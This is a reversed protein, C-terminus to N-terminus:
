WRPLARVELRPPAEGEKITLKPPRLSRDTAVRGAPRGTAMSIPVRTPKVAYVGPPLPAFTFRGDTDTEAARQRDASDIVRDLAEFGARDRARQEIAVFVGAMPKGQVDLLRGTVTVGQKLTITGMDGRKGEPVM